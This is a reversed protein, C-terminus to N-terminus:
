NGCIVFNTEGRGLVEKGKGCIGEGSGVKRRGGFGFAKGELCIANGICLRHSRTRSFPESLARARNGAWM